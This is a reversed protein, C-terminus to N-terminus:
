YLEVCFACRPAFLCLSACRPAFQLWISSWRLNLQITVFFYPFRRDSTRFLLSFTSGLKWYTRVDDIRTEGFGYKQRDSKRWLLSITSGLESVPGVQPESMTCYKACTYSFYAFYLFREQCPVPLASYHFSSAGCRVSSRQVEKLKM